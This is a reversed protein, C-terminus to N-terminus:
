VFREYEECEQQRKIRNFFNDHTEDMVAGDGLRDESNGAARQILENGRAEDHEQDENREESKTREALDDAFGIEYANKQM